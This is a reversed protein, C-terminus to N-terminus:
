LDNNKLNHREMLKLLKRKLVKKKSFPNLKATKMTSITRSLNKCVEIVKEKTNM